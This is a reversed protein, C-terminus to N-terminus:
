YEFQKLLSTLTEKFNEFKFETNVKAIGAESMAKRLNDDKYLSYIRLYLAESDDPSIIFGNKGEDIADVSGDQNGGIIPKGCASAEILGLPLGEGEGHGFSSVLVFVDCLNYLPVLDDEPVRLTFFVRTELSLSKVLNKVQDRMAGDGVIVYIIEDPLNSLTKIVLEFGKNRELRGVTIIVFKEKPISYKFFLKEDKPIPKFRDIDVPDHLLKLKTEQIDFHEKVYNLVFKCDGIILDSNKLGITDRKKVNTWVEIGYVNTIYKIKILKKAFYAIISLQIHDIIVLEIKKEKIFSLTKKTYSLKDYFSIGSQIYDTKIRDEFANQPNYDYLSFVFVNENGYIEKLAKIQYIAYRPIGGKAFVDSGLFLFKM